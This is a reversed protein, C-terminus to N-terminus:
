KVPARLDANFKCEDNIESLFNSTNTSEQVQDYDFEVHNSTGPTALFDATTFNESAFEAEEFVSPQDNLGRSDGASKLAELAASDDIHSEPLDENNEETCVQNSKNNDKETGLDSSEDEIEKKVIIVENRSGDEDYENLDSDSESDDLILVPPQQKAKFQDLKELEADLADLDLDFNVDTVDEDDMNSRLVEYVFTKEAKSNQREESEQLVQM